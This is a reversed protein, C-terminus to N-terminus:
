NFVGLSVLEYDLLSNELPVPLRKLATVNNLEERRIFGHASHYM